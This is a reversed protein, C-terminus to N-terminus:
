LMGHERLICRVKIHKGSSYFARRDLVAGNDLAWKLIDPQNHVAANRAAARLNCLKREHLAKLMVLEGNRAAQESVVTQIISGSLTTKHGLVWLMLEMSRSLAAAEYLPVDFEVADQEDLYQLIHLHNHTAARMDLRLNSMDFADSDDYKNYDKMAWKLVELLGKDTASIRVDTSLRSSACEAFYDAHTWMCQEEPEGYSAILARLPRSLAEAMATHALM